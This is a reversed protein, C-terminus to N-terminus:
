GTSPPENRKVNTVATVGTTIALFTVLNKAGDAVQNAWELPIAELVAAVGGVAITIWYIISRARPNDSLM